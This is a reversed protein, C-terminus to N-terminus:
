ADKDGGLVSPGKTQAAGSQLPRLHHRREQRAALASEAIVVNTM